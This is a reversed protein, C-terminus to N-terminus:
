LMKLLEKHIESPAHARLIKPSEDAIREFFEQKKVGTEIMGYYADLLKGKGQALETRFKDFNVAIFTAPAIQKSAAKNKPTLEIFYSKEQYEFMKGTLADIGWSTAGFSTFIFFFNFLSATTIGKELDIATTKYGALKFQVLPVGEVRRRVNSECPTKCILNGNLYVDAGQPSSDFAIQDYNQSFITACSSALLGILLFISYNM